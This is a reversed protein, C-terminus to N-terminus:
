HTARGVAAKNVSARAGYLFRSVHISLLCFACIDGLNLWCVHLVANASAAELAHQHSRFVKRLM